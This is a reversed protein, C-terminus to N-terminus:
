GVIFRRPTGNLADIVGAITYGDAAGRFRARCIHCTRVLLYGRPNVTGWERHEADAPCSDAVPLRLWESLPPDHLAARWPEVIEIRAGETEVVRVGESEQEAAMNGETDSTNRMM